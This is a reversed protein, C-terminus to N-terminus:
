LVDELLLVHNYLYILTSRAKAMVSEGNGLRLTVENPRLRRENALDELSAYIDSSADTDLVWANSSSKSYKSALLNSFTESEGDKDKGKTKLSKLFEPCNRKWNEESQCHFCKGKRKDETM